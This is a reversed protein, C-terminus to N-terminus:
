LMQDKLLETIPFGKQILVSPCFLQRHMFLRKEAILLLLNLTKSKQTINYRISIDNNDRSYKVFISFMYPLLFSNRKAPLMSYDFDNPNPLNKFKIYIYECISLPLM